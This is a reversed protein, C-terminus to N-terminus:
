GLLEKELQDRIKRPEFGLKVIRSNGRFGQGSATTSVLGFMELESIYERYWRSSVPPEKLKKAMSCYEDYIEGSFLVNEASPQGTLKAQPKKNLSLEALSFLLIQQHKPLTSVMSTIIEEEVKKKARKVEDDTVKELGKQEALEGARFLLMVATRADGSENAAFAAALNVASDEVSDPAFARKVRDNLIARLEEANYPPFVMEKEVLSSKTRPDLRERFFLNNSIGILTIGGGTVEDNARTLSYVLEDLDKTKDIEDLVVVLQAKNKSVWDVLKDYVFGSSFGFFREEPYLDEVIKSLVRYKRSHNRCNIYLGAVPLNKGKAFELLQTLVHRTVSTKGTGTKGYLFINSAKKGSLTASLSESIEHIQTERFPLQEPIFHPSIAERDVFLSKTNSFHKEFINQSSVPTPNPVLDTM